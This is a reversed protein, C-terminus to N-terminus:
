GRYTLLSGENLSNRFSVGGEAVPCFYDAGGWSIRVLLLGALGSDSWTNGKDFFANAGHLDYHQSLVILTNVLCIVGLKM